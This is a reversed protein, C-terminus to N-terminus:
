RLRWETPDATSASAALQCFDVPDVSIWGNVSGHAMDFVTGSSYM